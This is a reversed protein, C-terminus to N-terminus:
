YPRKRKWLYGIDRKQKEIGDHLTNHLKQIDDLEFSDKISNILEYFDQSNSEEHESISLLTLIKKYLTLESQLDKINAKEKIEKITENSHAWYVNKAFEDSEKMPKRWDMPLANYGSELNLYHVKVENLRNEYIERLNLYYDYKLSRTSIQNVAQEFNILLQIKNKQYENQLPELDKKSPFGLNILSKLFSM